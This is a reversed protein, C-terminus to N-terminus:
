LNDAVGSHGRGGGVKHEPPECFGDEELNQGRTARLLDAVKSHTKYAGCTLLGALM